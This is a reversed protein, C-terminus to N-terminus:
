ASAVWVWWELREVCWARYAEVVARVRVDGRAEPLRVAHLPVEGFHWAPQARELRAHADGLFTPLRVTGVGLAAADRLVARDDCTFALAVGGTWNARAPGTAHLTGEHPAGIWRLTPLERPDDVM